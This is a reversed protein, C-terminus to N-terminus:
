ETKKRWRRRGGPRKPPEFYDMGRLVIANYCSHCYGDCFHPSKKRRCSKCCTRKRVSDWYERDVKLEEKPKRYYCHKCLGRSVHPIEKTECKQCQDYHKAWRQYGKFKAYITEAEKIEKETVHYSAREVIRGNDNFVVKLKEALEPCNQVAKRLGTEYYGMKQAIKKLSWRRTSDVIECAMELQRPTFNFSTRSCIKGRANYKVDLLEVLQPFEVLLQRLRAREVRLMKAVSIITRKSRVRSKKKGDKVSPAHSVCETCYGRASHPNHTKKCKVCRKHDRSWQDPKEGLHERILREAKEWDEDTLRLTAPLYARGSSGRRTVQFLRGFEENEKLLTIVTTERYGLKRAIKEITWQRRLADAVIEDAQELESYTFQFSRQTVIHGNDGFEVHLLKQLKENTRVLERM